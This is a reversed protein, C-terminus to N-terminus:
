HREGGGVDDFTLGGSHQFNPPFTEEDCCNDFVITFRYKVWYTIVPVVGEKSICNRLRINM